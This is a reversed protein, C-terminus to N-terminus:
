EEEQDLKALIDHMNLVSEQLKILDEEQLHELRKEMGEELKVAIRQLCGAGEGTLSMYKVRRDASSPTRIVFGSEELKQVLPTLNSKQIRLKKGIETSTLDGFDELTKLIFFDTVSLESGQNTKAPPLLKRKIMPFLTLLDRAIEQNEEKNM